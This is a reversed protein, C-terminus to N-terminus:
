YKTYFIRDFDLHDLQLTLGPPGYRNMEVSILGKKIFLVFDVEERNFGDQLNRVILLRRGTLRIREPYSPDALIRADFEAGDITEDISIQVKLTMLASASIDHNLVIVAPSRNGFGM